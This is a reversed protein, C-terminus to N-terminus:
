IFIRLVSTCTNLLFLARARSVSLSLSLSAFPAYPKIPKKQQHGVPRVLAAVWRDAEYNTETRLQLKFGESEVCLVTSVRRVKTTPMLILRGKTSTSGVGVSNQAEEESKFYALV